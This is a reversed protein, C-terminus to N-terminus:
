RHSTFFFWASQGQRVPWLDRRHVLYLILLPSIWVWYRFGIPNFAFLLLMPVLFVELYDALSAAPTKRRLLFLLYAGYFIALGVKRGLNILMVRFDVMMVGPGEALASLTLGPLVYFVIGAVVFIVGALLLLRFRRALNVEAVLVYPLILIVPFIKAFTGLVLFLLCRFPKGKVASYLALVVLMAPIIDIGGHAFVSHLVAPNLAWLVLVGVTKREDNVMRLMLFCVLCDCALQCLKLLFLNRFVLSGEGPSLLVLTWNEYPRALYIFGKAAELWSSIDSSFLYALWMFPAKVLYIVPPFYFGIVRLDFAWKGFRAFVDTVYDILLLDFHMTFPMILVRIFLGFLFLQLLLSPRRTREPKEPAM